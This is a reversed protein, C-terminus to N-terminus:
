DSTLSKAVAEEMQIRKSSAEEEARKAVDQLRAAEVPNDAKLSKLSERRAKEAQQKLYAEKDRLSSLVAGM